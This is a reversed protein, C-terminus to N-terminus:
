GRFNKLEKHIQEVSKGKTEPLLTIVFMLGLVCFGGFIWFTGANGLVSGTMTKFLLSVLFAAGSNVFFATAVAKSRVKSPFIEGTFTYPLVGCGSNYSTIFAVLLVIPVWSFSEVSQNTNEKIYFYVGFITHGIAMGTTSIMFLIRRGLKDVFLPSSFSMFFQIAGLVIASLESSLSSGAEDFISQAYALVALVGSFEQLVMLVLSFMLAKILIRDSLLDKFTGEENIKIENEWQELENEVSKYSGIRLKKLVQRAQEKKNKKLLYVPSEVGFSGFLCLFMVPIAAIILNYVMISLYAGLIYSLLVGFMIFSTYVSLFKGRNKVDSIESVYVFTANIAGGFCFGVILRTILYLVAKQAFANIVFAAVTPFVMLLLTSKRGIFDSLIGSPYNGLISGVSLMATIWSEENQTITHGLPNEDTRNPNTLKPLVPSTWGICMGATLSSLNM